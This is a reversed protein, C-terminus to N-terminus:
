CYTVDPLTLGNHQVHSIVVVSECIKKFQGKPFSFYFYGSWWFNVTCFITCMFWSAGYLNIEAITCFTKLFVEHAATKPIQQIKWFELAPPTKWSLISNQLYSVLIFLWVSISIQELCGLGKDKEYLLISTCFVGWLVSFYIRYLLSSFKTM